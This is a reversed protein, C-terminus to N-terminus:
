EHNHREHSDEKDENDHCSGDCTEDSCCCADDIAVLCCSHDEKCKTSEGDTSKCGLCCSKQCNEGCQSEACCEKECNEGCKGKEKGANNDGCSSLTLAFAFLTIRFISIINKM